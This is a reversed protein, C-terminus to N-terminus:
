RECVALKQLNRLLAPGHRLAVVTAVHALRTRRVDLAVAAFAYCEHFFLGLVADLGDRRVSWSRHSSRADCPDYCCAGARRRLIIVIRFTLM